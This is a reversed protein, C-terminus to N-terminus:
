FTTGLNFRFSQTKDTVKKTIPQAGFIMPVKWLELSEPNCNKKIDSLESSVIITYKLNNDSNAKEISKAISRLNGVGYDVVTLLM